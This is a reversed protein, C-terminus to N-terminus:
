GYWANQKDPVRFKGCMKARSDKSQRRAAYCIFHSASKWFLAWTKDDFVHKYQLYLFPILWFQLFHKLM